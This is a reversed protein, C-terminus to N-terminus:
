LIFYKKLRKILQNDCSQFDDLLIDYQEKAKTKNKNKLYSLALFHHIECASAAENRDISELKEISKLYEKKNYFVISECFDMSVSNYEFQHRLQEFLTLVKKWNKEKFAQEAETLKYAIVTPRGSVSKFEAILAVQEHEITAAIEALDSDLQNSLYKQFGFVSVLLVCVAALWRRVQRQKDINEVRAQRMNNQIIEFQPHQTKNELLNEIRAEKMATEVTDLGLASLMSKQFMLEEQLAEDKSLADEFDNLAERNLEGKIYAAVLDHQTDTLKM